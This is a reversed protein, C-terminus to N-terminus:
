KESNSVDGWEREYQNELLRLQLKTVNIFEQNASYIAEAVDRKFRLDAVERLGYVVKDILTVAMGGDKLELSKKSLSMKYDREAEALATGTESLRKIAVTLERSKGEIQEYLEM